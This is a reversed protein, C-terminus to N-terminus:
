CMGLGVYCFVVLLCAFVYGYISNSEFGQSWHELEVLDHVVVVIHYYICYHRLDRQPLSCHLASLPKDSRSRMVRLEDM